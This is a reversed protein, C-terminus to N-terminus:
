VRKRRLDLAISVKKSFLRFPIYDCRLRFGGHRVPVLASWCRRIPVIRSESSRVQFGYSSIVNRVNESASYDYYHASTRQRKRVPSRSRYRGLDWRAHAVYDEWCLNRVSGRCGVVAEQKGVSRVGPRSEVSRKGRERNGGSRLGREVSLFRGGVLTYGVAVGRQVSGPFYRRRVERRRASGPVDRLRRIGARGSTQLNGCAGVLGDGVVRGGSDDFAVRVAYRRGGYRSGIVESRVTVTGRKSADVSRM